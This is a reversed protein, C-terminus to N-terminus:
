LLILLILYKLIKLKQPILYKQKILDNECLDLDHHNESTKQTSIMKMSWPRTSIGSTVTTLITLTTFLAKQQSEKDSLEAQTIDSPIMRFTKTILFTINEQPQHTPGAHTLSCPQTWTIESEKKLFNCPKSLSLQHNASM